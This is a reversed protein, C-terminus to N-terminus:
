TAGQRHRHIARDAMPSKTKMSGFFRGVGAPVAKLTDTPNVIAKGVAQASRSTSKALADVFVESASMKELEAAPGVEAIRQRLQESGDAVVDGLDTKVIFQGQFGSVPVAPAIRYGQGASPPLNKFDATTLTAEGEVPPSKASSPAPLM